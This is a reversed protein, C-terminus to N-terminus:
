KVYVTKVNVFSKIGEEALERGYGSNKVGGFPLRPDSKVIENVFVAGENFGHVQELVQQTNKTCISVGLGFDSRNSLEIAHELNEIPMFPAVPGFLEERFAPMEPTINKLITPEYFAGDRNGGIVLEAGLQISANVQRELQGALDLRALPGIDCTKDMPNLRKLKEVKVRFKGIYADYLEKAILFSKGAICSQGSNLFRASFGTQVAADLDADALVIVANSGGLELLNPKLVAGATKAVARGARESGTLSVARILPHEIVKSARENELLITTFVGEGFGAEAFLEHILLACKSVNPSHKLIATNGALITPIAFRYVQWFPFNWPMIGYVVGLPEYTVFSESADTKIHKRQLQSAANEAYYDCLWACKEVEAISERLPKGMELTVVEGIAEKKDRLLKAMGRVLMTKQSMPEIKWTHFASNAKQILIELYEDSYPTFVEIEKLDFPNISKLKTSAEM